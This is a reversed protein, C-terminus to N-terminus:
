KVQPFKSKKSISIYTIVSGILLITLIGIGFYIGTKPNKVTTNEVKQNFNTLGNKIDLEFSTFIEGSISVSVTENSEEQTIKRSSYSVGNKELTLNKSNELYELVKEIDYGKLDSLAMISNLIWVSDILASNEDSNAVYKLIGNSYTFNTVYSNTGDNLEVKLTNETSTINITNGSTILEKIFSTNKFKEVYNNWLTEDESIYTGGVVYDKSVTIIPRISGEEYVSLYFYPFDTMAYGYVYIECHTSSSDSYSIVSNTFIKTGEENNLAYFPINTLNELHVMGFGEPNTREGLEELATKSTYDFEGVIDNATPLTVNTANTWTATRQKLAQDVVSGEFACTATTMDEPWKIDEGLAGKYIAKVSDSNNEIVLFKEKLTDNLNVTIEDGVKYTTYTKADVDIVGITLTLLMVVFLNKIKKM